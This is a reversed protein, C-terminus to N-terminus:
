LALEDFSLVTHFGKQTFYSKSDEGVAMVFDGGWAGLSKVAGPYDPFLREKVTPLGIAKATLAEHQTMAQQLAEPKNVSLFTNTLANIDKLLGKDVPLEMFRKVEPLSVQKQNLHVFTAEQYVPPLSCGSWTARVSPSAAKPDQRYLIPTASQACAVDYGSGSVASFFLTLADVEFLQAVLVILSSSSGLGWNQEFELRTSIKVHDLYKGGLAKATNFLHSLFGAIKEDSTEVVTFSIDFHAKFWCADHLNYSYWSIGMTDTPELWLRQGQVTPFALAQAGQLVTYEATLLLKGHAYFQQV